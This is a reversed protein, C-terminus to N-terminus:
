EGDKMAAFGADTLSYGGQSEDAVLFGKQTLQALPVNPNELDASAFGLINGPTMLSKRFMGLVTGEAPSLLSHSEDSKGLADSKKKEKARRERKEDAKRKKEMERRRKEMTNQDKAM